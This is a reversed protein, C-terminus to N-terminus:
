AKYLARRCLATCMRSGISSVQLKCPATDLMEAAFHWGIKEKFRVITLLQRLVVFDGREQSLQVIAPRPHQLILSITVLM